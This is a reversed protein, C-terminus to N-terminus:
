SWASSGLPHAALLALQLQLCSKFGIRCIKAELECAFRPRGLTLTCQGAEHGKGCILVADEPGAMAIAARIAFYRDVIYRRLNVNFAFDSLSEGYKLKL